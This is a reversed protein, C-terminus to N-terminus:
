INKIYPTNIYVGKGRLMMQGVCRHICYGMLQSYRFCKFTSKKKEKFFTITKQTKVTITNETHTYTHTHACMLSKPLSQPIMSILILLCLASTLPCNLPSSAQLGGPCYADMHTQCRSILSSLLTTLAHPPPKLPVVRNGSGWM